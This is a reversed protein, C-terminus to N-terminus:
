QLHHNVRSAQNFSCGTCGDCKGLKKSKLSKVFSYITYGAALSVLVLALINQIM